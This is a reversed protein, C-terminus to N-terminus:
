IKMSFWIWVAVGLIFQLSLGIAKRYLQKTIIKSEPLVLLLAGIIWMYYQM